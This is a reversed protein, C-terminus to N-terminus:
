ATGAPSPRAACSAVQAVHHHEATPDDGVGVCARQALLTNGLDEPRTRRQLADRVPELCREVLAFCGASVALTRAAASGASQVSWFPFCHIQELVLALLVEGAVVDRHRRAIHRVGDVLGDGCGLTGAIGDDHLRLHLHATAALGAADLQGVVGVLHAQVGAFMRPMSM